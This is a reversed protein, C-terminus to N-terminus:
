VGQQELQMIAQKIEQPNVDERQPGNRNVWNALTHQVALLINKSELEEQNIVGGSVLDELLIEFLKVGVESIVEMPLQGQQAEVQELVGNIANSMAEHFGEMGAKQFMQVLAEFGQGYLLEIAAKLAPKSQESVDALMSSNDGATPAPQAEETLLGGQEM